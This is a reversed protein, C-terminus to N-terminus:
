WFLCHYVDECHCHQVGTTPHLSIRPKSTNISFVIPSDCLQTHQVPESFSVVTWRACALVCRVRSHRLDRLAAHHTSPYVSPLLRRLWGLVQLTFCTKINKRILDVCWSNANIKLRTQQATNTKKPYIGGADKVGHAALSSQLQCTFGHFNTTQFFSDLGFRLLGLCDSLPLNKSNLNLELFWSLFYWSTYSLIIFWCTVLCGTTAVSM